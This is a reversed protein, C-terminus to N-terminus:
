TTKDQQSTVEVCTGSRVMYQVVDTLTFKLTNMSWHVGGGMLIKMYIQYGM